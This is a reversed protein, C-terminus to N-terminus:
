VSKNLLPLRHNVELLLLLPIVDCCLWKDNSQIKNKIKWIIDYKSQM